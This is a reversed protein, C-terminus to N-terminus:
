RGIGAKRTQADKIELEVEKALVKEQIHLRAQQLKKIEEQM